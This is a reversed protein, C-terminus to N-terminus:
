LSKQGIIEGCIVGMDMLLLDVQRLVAPFPSQAHSGLRLAWLQCLYVVMHLILVERYSLGSLIQRCHLLGPNSGRTPFIRQLLSHCDVGTNKGPSNWPCLLRTPYLKYLRLSDSVVSCM